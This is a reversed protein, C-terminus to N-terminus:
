NMHMITSSYNHPNCIIIMGMYRLSQLTYTSQRLSRKHQKQSQASQIYAHVTLTHSYWFGVYEGVAVSSDCMAGNM